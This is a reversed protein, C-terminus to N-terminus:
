TSCEKVMRIEYVDQDESLYFQEPKICSKESDPDSFKISYKSIDESAPIEFTQEGSGDTVKEEKLEDNYYLGLKMGGDYSYQGTSGETLRITKTTSPEEVKPSLVVKYSKFKVDKGLIKFKASAFDGGNEKGDKDTIKVWKIKEYDAVEVKGKEDTEMTKFTEGDEHLNVELKPIPNGKADKVTFDLYKSDSSSTKDSDTEPVGGPNTPEPESPLKPSGYDESPVGYCAALVLSFSGSILWILLLKVKEILKM